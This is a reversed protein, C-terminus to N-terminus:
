DLVVYLILLIVSMFFIDFSYMKVNQLLFHNSVYSSYGGMLEILWSFLRSLRSTCLFILQQHYFVLKGMFSQTPDKKGVNVDAFVKTKHFWVCLQVAAQLGPTLFQRQMLRHHLHYSKELCAFYLATRRMISDATFSKCESLINLLGQWIM